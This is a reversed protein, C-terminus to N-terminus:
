VSVPCAAVSFEAGGMSLMAPIIAFIIVFQPQKTWDALKGFVASSL